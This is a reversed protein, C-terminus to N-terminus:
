AKDERPELVQAKVAADVKHEHNQKGVKVGRNGEVRVGNGFIQLLVARKDGAYAGAAGRLLVQAFYDCADRKHASEEKTNDGHQRNSHLRQATYLAERNTAGCEEDDNRDNEVERSTNVRLYGYSLILRM